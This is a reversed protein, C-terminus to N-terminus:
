RDTAPAPRLMAIGIQGHLNADRSAVDGGGFWVRVNPGEVIVTPDCVVANNWPETGSFSVPLKEWHIGDSSTLIVGYSGVAVFLGNGYTVGKMSTFNTFTYRPEWDIGNDSSVIVNEGVAVYRKIIRFTSPSNLIPERWTAFTVGHLDNSGATTVLLDIGNTTTM